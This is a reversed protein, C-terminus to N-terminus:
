AGIPLTTQQNRVVGVVKGTLTNGIYPSNRCKSGFDNESVAWSQEPDFCTLNAKEGEKITVIPQRLITRPNHAMREVVQSWTLINEAVVYTNVVSLATELGIIGFPAANYECEKDEWTHPANDTAIM